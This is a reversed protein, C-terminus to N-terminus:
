DCMSVAFKAANKPAEIADRYADGAEAHMNLGKTGLTGNTSGCSSLVVLCVLCVYRM